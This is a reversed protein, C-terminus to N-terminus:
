RQVKKWTGTFPDIYKVKKGIAPNSKLVSTPSPLFGKAARPALESEHASFHQPIWLSPKYFRRM